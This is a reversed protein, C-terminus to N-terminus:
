PAYVPSVTPTQAGLYAKWLADFLTVAANFTIGYGTAMAQLFQTLEPYRAALAKLQELQMSDAHLTNPMGRTGTPDQPAMTAFNVNLPTWTGAATITASM